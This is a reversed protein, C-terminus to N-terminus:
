LIILTQFYLSQKSSNKSDYHINRIILILIRTGEETVDEMSQTRSPVSSEDLLYRTNTALVLCCRSFYDVAEFLLSKDNYFFDPKQRCVMVMSSFNSLFLILPKEM